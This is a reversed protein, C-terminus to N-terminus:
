RFEGLLVKVAKVMKSRGQGDFVRSLEGAAPSNNKSWRRGEAVQGAAKAKVLMAGPRREANLQLEAADAIMGRDKAQRACSTYSATPATGLLILQDASVSGVRFLKEGNAGSAPIIDFAPRGIWDRACYQRRAVRERASRNAATRRGLRAARAARRHSASLDKSIGAAKLTVKSFGDGDSVPKRHGRPRGGKSLQGAPNPRSWCKASGASAAARRRRRDHRSGQGPARVIQPAAGRRPGQDGRRRPAGRGDFSAKAKVAFVMLHPRSAAHRLLLGFPRCLCWRGGGARSPQWRNLRENRAGPRQPDFPTAWIMRASAAPPSRAISYAFRLCQGFLDIIDFDCLRVKRIMYHICSAYRFAQRDAFFNFRLTASDCLRVTARAYTRARARSPSVRRVRCSQTNNLGISDSM